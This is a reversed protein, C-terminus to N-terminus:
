VVRRYRIVVTAEGDASGTTTSDPTLVVNVPGSGTTNGLGTTAPKSMGETALDLDTTLGAGGDISIDATSSADFATKVNLTIDEIIYDGLINASYTLDDTGATVQFVVENFIGETKTVGDSGGVFRPGYTKGVASAGTPWTNSGSDYAM